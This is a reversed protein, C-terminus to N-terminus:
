CPRASACGSTYPLLAFGQAKLYEALAPGSLDERQGRFCRDSVTIIQVSYEM